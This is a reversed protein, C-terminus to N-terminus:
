DASIKARQIVASWERLDRAVVRAFDEPSGGVPTAGLKDLRDQLDAQSLLSNLSRNLKTVVEPPTKAPAFVGFWTSAEMGPVRLESFTPVEPMTKSRTAGTIALARVKGERVHPAATLASDMLFGIQGAILDPLVQGTGRYPIHVAFLAGDKGGAQIKLLEASLHPITGLGSSGFNYAGPKARLEAVFERLTRAPFSNSVILANPVTGLHFVPAFDKEAHYPIKPNLAPGISHTSSTAMLLTYGDPAAKAVFDSGITGGAGPKNEVVVQQGLSLSLKQAIVRGLIDTAGGAPFPILLRIPRAPYDRSAPVSPGTTSVGQANAMLCQAAVVM